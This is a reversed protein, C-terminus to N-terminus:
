DESRKGYGRVGDGTAVDDEPSCRRQSVNRRQAARSFHLEEAVAVFSSILAYDM